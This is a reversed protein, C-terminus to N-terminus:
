KQYSILISIAVAMFVNSGVSGRVVSYVQNTVLVVVALTRGRRRRGAATLRRLPLCRLQQQLELQDRLAAM